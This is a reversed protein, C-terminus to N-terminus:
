ISMYNDTVIVIFVFFFYDPVPSSSDLLSYFMRYRLDHRM